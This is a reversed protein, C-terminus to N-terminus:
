NKVFTHITDANINKESRLKKDKDIQKMLARVYSLNDIVPDNCARYLIPKTLPNKYM